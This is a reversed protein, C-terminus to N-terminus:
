RFTRSDIGQQLLEPRGLLEHQLVRLSTHVPFPKPKIGVPYAAEALFNAVSEGILLLCLGGLVLVVARHDRGEAAVSGGPLLNM